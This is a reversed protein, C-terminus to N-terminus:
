SRTDTGKRRAAKATTSPTAGSTALAASPAGTATSPDSAAAPLVWDTLPADTEPPVVESATSSAEATAASRPSPAATEHLAPALILEAETLHDDDGAVEEELDLM